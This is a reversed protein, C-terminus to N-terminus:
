KGDIRRDVKDLRQNIHDFAKLIADLRPENTPVGAPEPAPKRVAERSGVIMPEIEKGDGGIM